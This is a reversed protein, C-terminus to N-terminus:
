GGHALHFITINSNDPIEFIEYDDKQILEENVTVTILSYTYNLKNLLDRITMKEEWEVKDRNNIIVM